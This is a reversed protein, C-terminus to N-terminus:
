GCRRCLLGVTFHERGIGDGILELSELVARFVPVGPIHIDEVIVFSHSASGALEMSITSTHPIQALGDLDFAANQVTGIVCRMERLWLEGRSSKSVCM